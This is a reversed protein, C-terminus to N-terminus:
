VDPRLSKRRFRSARPMSPKRMEAKLASLSGFPFVREASSAVVHIDKRRVDWPALAAICDDSLVDLGPSYPTLAPVVIVNAAALFAPVSSGGGMHLSPHLHGIISQTGARPPRDGHALHWGDRQASEVTVGLVSFGRSRGEHNGAVLTLLASERLTELAACVTRAAGESMSNGHIIDGLLVIERAAMRKAALVLTATSQATSWLPLAGGIVDEYAFHADAALLVRSACLWLLGSPLAFVGPRLEYTLASADPKM